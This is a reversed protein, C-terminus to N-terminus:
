NLSRWLSFIDRVNVLSELGNANISSTCASFVQHALRKFMVSQKSVLSLVIEVLIEWGGREEGEPAYLKEYCVSLEDLISVADTDGNYVQLITLSYLLKFAILQEKQRSDASTAENHINQLTKNAELVTTSIESGKEFPLLVPTRGPSDILKNIHNLVKFPYKSSDNSKTMLQGVLSM